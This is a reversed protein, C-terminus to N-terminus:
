QPQSNKNQTSGHTPSTNELKKKVHALKNNTIRKLHEWPSAKICTQLIQEM